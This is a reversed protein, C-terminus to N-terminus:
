PALVQEGQEHLQGQSGAGQLDAGSLDADQLNASSFNAARFDYGIGFLTFSVGRLDCCGFEARPYSVLTDLTAGSAHLDVWRRTARNGLREGSLDAVYLTDRRDTRHYLRAEIAANWEDIGQEFLSVDDPNSM